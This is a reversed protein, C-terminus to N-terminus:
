QDGRKFGTENKKAGNGSSKEFDIEVIAGSTLLGAIIQKVKDLGFGTRARIQSKTAALRGGNVEADIALLVATEDAQLKKRAAERKEAERREAASDRVESPTEVSVNWERGAFSEDVTGEEIHLSWLGGHGASGGITAWLDHVGDGKYKERRNLLVFQRAFQELGSYALHTLEMPEGVVLQRNAHHILLPTCGVKLLVEAVVRFAAGAEFLNKADINGLALYVPDIIVVEANLGALTEAFDAMVDLQSFTPLSFCWSLHGGLSALTIGKARCVRHATEQLTHEGSEGSVVAVRTRKPIDFQGLFPTGSALSVGLDISLNTKLAKSPGAIVGPQNRVLARSVLWQPRFDGTAFTASNVFTFRPNAVHKEAPAAQEEAVPEKDTRVEIAANVLHSAIEQGAAGWDEAEGFGSAIAQVWVRADKHEEPPMTWAIPRGLLETLQRATTEAGHRGPWDGNERRDNEGVIYVARGPSDTLLERLLAVGGTNSPRGIVSLGCLSLAIVDSPGEVIFLPGTGERWGTPLTLGRKSRHICMKNPSSDDTNVPKVYRRGLGIVAGSPDCEPFVWCDGHMDEEKTRWGVALVDLAAEPLGLNKALAKRTDPTMAEAYRASMAGWDQAPKPSAQPAPKPTAKVATTQGNRLNTVDNVHRYTSFPEGKKVCKWEDRPEGRCFHAGDAKVSCGKTGSGCVPCPDAATARRAIESM